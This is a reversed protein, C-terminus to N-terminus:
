IKIMSNRWFGHIKIKLIVLRSYFVQKQIFRKFTDFKMSQAHNCKLLTHSLFLNRKWQHADCSVCRSKRKKWYGSANGEKVTRVIYLKVKLQQSKKPVLAKTANTM